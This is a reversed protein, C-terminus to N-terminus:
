VAPARMRNRIQDHELARQANAHVRWIIELVMFFFMALVSIASVHLSFLPQLLGYMLFIILWALVMAYTKTNLVTRLRLCLYIGRGQIFLSLLGAVIGGSILAQLIENHATPAVYYQGVDDTIMFDSLHKPGAVFGWGLWSRAKIMEESAKWVLARDSLTALNEESGGRQITSMVSAMLSESSMLTLVVALGFVLALIRLPRSGIRVLAYAAGSVLFAAWPGRSYTAALMILCIVVVAIRKGGHLFSMAFFALLSVFAGLVVPHTFLGGLRRAGSMEAQYVLSPAVPLVVLNVVTPIIAVPLIVLVLQRVSVQKTALGDCIALYVLGLALGWEGIRFLALLLDQGSAALPATVAYWGFLLVFLGMSDRAIAPRAQRQRRQSLMHLTFAGAILLFLAIRALSQANFMSGKNLGSRDFELFNPVNIALICLLVRILAVARGSRM